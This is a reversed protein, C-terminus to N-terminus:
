PVAVFGTASVPITTEYMRIRQLKKTPNATQWALLQTGVSAPFDDIPGKWGVTPVTPPRFPTLKLTGKFKRVEAGFSMDSVQPRGLGFCERIYPKWNADVVCDGLVNERWIEIFLFRNQPGVEEIFGSDNGTDTLWSGSVFLSDLYPDARLANFELEGGVVRDPLQIRYAQEGSTCSKDAQLTKGDIVDRKFMASEVADTVYANATGTIADGTMCSALSLRVACVGYEPYAVAAM